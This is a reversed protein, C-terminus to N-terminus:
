FRTAELALVLKRLDVLLRHLLSEPVALYLFALGLYAYIFPFLNDQLYDDLLDIGPLLPTHTASTYTGESSYSRTKADLSSRETYESVTSLTM